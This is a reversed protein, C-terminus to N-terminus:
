YFIGMLTDSSFAFPESQSSSLILALCAYTLAVSIPVRVMASFKEGLLASITGTRKSYNTRKNECFCLVARVLDLKHVIQMFAFRLDFIKMSDDNMEDIMVSEGYDIMQSLHAMTMGWTQAKSERHPTGFLVIGGLRKTLFANYPSGISGAIVVAQEIVLGGFSHGLFLIPRRM